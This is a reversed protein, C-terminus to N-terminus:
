AWGWPRITVSPWRNAATDARWALAACHIQDIDLNTVCLDEPRGRSRASLARVLGDGTAKASAELRTWWRLFATGRSGDPVGALARSEEVSMLDAALAEYGSPERIREVDVGVDTGRAVAVLAVDDCHSLSFKLSDHPPRLYPKGHSAGCTRCPRNGFRLDAAPGGVYLGLIMRLAVHAAAFRRRSPEHRFQETRRREDDDLVGVRADIGIDSCVAELDIQWVHVADASLPLVMDACVSM